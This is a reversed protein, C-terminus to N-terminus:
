SAVAPQQRVTREVTKEVSNTAIVVEIRIREIM